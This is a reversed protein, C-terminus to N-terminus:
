PKKAAEIGTSLKAVLKKFDDRDRLSSLDNDKQMEVANRYGAQVAKNLLEMARDGYEQKKQPSKAAAIAYVCAFNYWNDRRWDSSKALEAVEAIGETVQGANIRSAALFIRSTAQQQRYEPVEPFEAVLKDQIVLAKRSHEDAESPKGMETLLISLNNHCKALRHRYKPVTPFDAALKEWIAQAARFDKQSESQNKRLLGRGNHADALEDQYEPV